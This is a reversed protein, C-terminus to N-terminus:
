IVSRWPVRALHLGFQSLQGTLGGGPALKFEYIQPMRLNLFNIASLRFEYIRHPDGSVASLRVFMFAPGGATSENIPDSM